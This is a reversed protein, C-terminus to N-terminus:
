FSFFCLFLLMKGDDMVWVGDIGSGSREENKMGGSKKM